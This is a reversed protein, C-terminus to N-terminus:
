LVRSKSHLVVECEMLNGEDDIRCNTLFGWEGNYKKNIELINEIM